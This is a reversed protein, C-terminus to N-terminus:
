LKRSKVFCSKTMLLSINLNYNFFLKRFGLDAGRGRVYGRTVGRFTVGWMFIIGILSFRYFRGVFRIRILGIDVRVATLDFDVFRLTLFLAKRIQLDDNERNRRACM